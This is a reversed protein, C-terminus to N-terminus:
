QGPRKDPVENAMARSPNALRRARGARSRVSRLVFCSTTTGSKNSFLLIVRGEAPVYEMSPDDDPLEEGGVDVYEGFFRAYSRPIDDPSFQLRVFLDLADAEHRALLEAARTGTAFLERFRRLPEGVPSIVEVNFGITDGYPLNFATCLSRSAPFPKGKRKLQVRIESGSVSQPLLLFRQAVGRSLELDDASTEDPKPALHRQLDRKLKTALDAPGDFTDVTHSERLTRKFSALKERPVADLDIDSLRLTANEDRLYILIELNLERAREYELQTFSKGSLDDVSGLRFGIVGLYVNCQEVEALCTELPAETRAGFAEMGRLNVEFTGLLDWVARRHEALDRFTSSVFITKKL